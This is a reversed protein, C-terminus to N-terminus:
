NIREDFNKLGAIEPKLGYWNWLGVFDIPRILNQELFLALSIKLSMDNVLYKDM